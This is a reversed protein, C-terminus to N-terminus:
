NERLRFFLNGSIPGNTQQYQSGVIGPSGGATNWSNSVAINTSSQLTFGMYNSPWSLIMNTAAQQMSLQPGGLEFAGIDSGDGGAAHAM